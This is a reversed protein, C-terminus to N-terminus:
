QIIANIITFLFFFFVFIPLVKFLRTLFDLAVRFLYVFCNRSAGTLGTVPTKRKM